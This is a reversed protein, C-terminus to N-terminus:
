PSDTRELAATASTLAKDFEAELHRNAGRCHEVVRAAWRLYEAKRRRSWNRPPSHVISRVNSTKDALKLMQARRSGLSAREIQLRKREQKELSKDDTVEAVLGAVEPGFEAALEEETTATDEITDHLLGAMLLVPDEGGTAEALLLTVEALHNVYPEEAEGKRRHSRHKRAAFELARVLDILQTM